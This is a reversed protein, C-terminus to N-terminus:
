SIVTAGTSIPWHCEEGLVQCDLVEGIFITHDGAEHLDAIRCDAYALCNTLLPSGTVGERVIVDDFHHREEVVRGAFRNALHQQDARLINVAFYGAQRLLANTRGGVLVCVLVMPPSLSLASFANATM